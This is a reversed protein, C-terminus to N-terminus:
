PDVAGLPRPRVDTALIAWFARDARDYLAAARGDPSAWATAGDVGVIREGGGLRALQIRVMVGGPLEQDVTRVSLADARQSSPPSLRWVAGNEGELVLTGPLTVALRAATPLLPTWTATTPSTHGIAPLAPWLRGGQLIIQSLLFLGLLISGVPRKV